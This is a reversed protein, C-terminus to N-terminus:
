LKIWSTKRWNKKRSHMINAWNEGNKGLKQCIKQRFKGCRCCIKSLIIWLKV